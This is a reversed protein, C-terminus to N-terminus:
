QWFEGLCGIRAAHEENIAIPSSSIATFAWELAAELMVTLV